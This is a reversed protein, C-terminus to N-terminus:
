QFFLTLLVIGARGAAMFSVAGGVDSVASFDAIGFTQEEVVFMVDFRDIEGDVFRKLGTEAGHAEPDGGVGRPTVTPASSLVGGFM